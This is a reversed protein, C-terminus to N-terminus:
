GLLAACEVDSLELATALRRISSAHPRAVTGQEIYRVARISVGARHSLEVQSLGARFRHQRLMDGPSTGLVRSGIAPADFRGSLKGTRAARGSCRAAMVVSEAAVAGPGRPGAAAATATSGLACRRGM